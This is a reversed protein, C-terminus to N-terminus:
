TSQEARRRFLMLLLITLAALSIVAGPVLYTSHFTLVVQSAGAPVPVARMWANAPICPAPLGNVRASWGPFWPEALVLLASTTSEVAMSIREPSFHTITARGELPPAQAPLTVPREVLAVNHFDHGERMLATAEDDDRVLRVSSALYVRPDSRPRYVPRQAQADAGVVLAMSAYPFPGFAALALSPFTNVTSPAPVSLTNHMYRWVRGPALASYGYPTSWGRV